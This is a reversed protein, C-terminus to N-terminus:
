CSGSSPRRPISPDVVEIHVHPWSPEATLEDIQSRFPFPTARSAIQRGAVLRDGKLVRVGQIHLIKVELDPRGDPNIVVYGDRYRCYLTYEGARAVTGTVPSYISALPHVAIDAAGRLDTDRGRSQMTTMPFSPFRAPAMGLAGPHTSQHFGVQEIVSAPTMLTLGAVTAVPESRTLIEVSRPTPTGGALRCARGPVDDSPYPHASTFEPSLSVNLVVEGRTLTGDTLLGTWYALGAPEGRRGLVNGYILEVFQPDSLAGYRAAFEESAAFQDAILGLPDCRDVREAWYLAGEADPQRLFFAWYLRFVTAHDGTLEDLNAVIDFSAQRSAAVPHETPTGVITLKEQEPEVQASALGVAGAVGTAALVVAVLTQRVVRFWSLGGTTMTNMDASAVM